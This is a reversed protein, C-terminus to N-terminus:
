SSCSNTRTEIYAILLKRRAPEACEIIYWVWENVLVGGGKFSVVEKGVHVHVHVYM